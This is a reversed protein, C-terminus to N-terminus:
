RGPHDPLTQVRAPRLSRGSVPAPSRSPGRCRRRSAQARSVDTGASGGSEVWDISRVAHVSARLEIRALDFKQAPQRQREVHWNVVTTRQEAAVRGLSRQHCLAHAAFRSPYPLPRAIRQHGAAVGVNLCHQAPSWIQSLGPLTPKGPIPGPADPSGRFRSTDHASYATTSTPGARFWPSIRRSSSSMSAIHAAFDPGCVHRMLIPPAAEPLASRAAQGPAGRVPPPAPVDLQPIAGFLSLHALVWFWAVLLSLLGFAAGYRNFGGLLRIYIPFVQAIIVFLLAGNLTGPWVDAIEQGANPVVRYLMLFMAGTAIFAIVYGLVQNWGAALPWSQFYSPLDQRVFLTPITSALLALMFLLAFGLVVFFGRRKECMYGCGTVGYIRNM